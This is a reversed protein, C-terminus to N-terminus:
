PTPATCRFGRDSGTNSSSSYINATFIGARSDYGYYGGRKMAGGFGNSGPYYDGVGQSTGWSDNWFSKQSNRPVLDTVLWNIGDSLSDSYLRIANGANAKGNSEFTSTWAWINGSMDWVVEGTSLKHTRRQLDWTSADCTEETGFCPDNDNTSGALSNAPSNDSHGRNLMGSGVSGGSWNEAVNAMNSTVTMWEDNTILRYNTGISACETISDAQSINVWPSGAANSEPSGSVNKAEFKMICFNSTGYDADGPIGVWTGGSLTSCDIFGIFGDGNEISSTNGANDLARINAYYTTGVVLTLSTISTTLVNSINTWNKIDTAGSSTGISVEYSALGSGDDTSAAWTMDASKTLGKSNVGDVFSSPTTPPINDHIITDNICNTTNGTSDKFKAYVSATSNTQSLSWSAKATAYSEWSGGSSCGSTNTIYMDSASGANLSLTIASSTTYSSGSSITISPSTPAINDHTITDNICSSINGTEDKFKVYVTATANTQGLTWSAKSTAYNEWVGDVSCGSTNTIYMESAGTAALTLDPTSDSTHTGGDIVLSTSTPVNDDHIITDNVCASTNGAEDKFKVYVTATSDSQGLSWSTKSTAYSEWAGDANCGSTNTIYMESAGTAALTLDPTSDSTHTGGDIVLSTSTPANDDHIITDNVCNGETGAANRFKVYVTATANTQGLIWGAKTTSYNSWVGDASCGSTNTIYMEAAGTATLTLDATTNPTHTHGIIAISESSPATSDHIITDSVCSSENGANDKYKVYVTATADTQGLSWNGKSTGYNEWTGGTSCGPTNTIYMEDAGVSFLTLEPTTDATHTGGDITITESSPAIDDHVITDNVCSSMNGAEDKFKAYITVTANTQGSSWATKSTAYNEWSGGTICGPTNTIYMESADTAILTFDTTPNNTHDGGTILISGVPATSDHIITDNVCSSENGSDDKYKVYVTATANTQELSWETKSTAYNEWSGGTICGPTNTIYMHTAGFASLVLNPASNSTHDGNHIVVSHLNPAETDVTLDILSRCEGLSEYKSTVQAYFTHSGNSINQLEIKVNGDQKTLQTSLPTGSCNKNSYISLDADKHLPGADIKPASSVTTNITDLQVNKLRPPGPIFKGFINSSTFCLKNDLLTANLHSVNKDTSVQTVTHIDNETHFCIHATIPSPLNSLLDIDELWNVEIAGIISLSDSFKVHDSIIKNIAPDNMTQIDLTGLPTKKNLTSLDIQISKDSNESNLKKSELVTDVIKFQGSVIRTLTCVESNKVIGKEQTVIQNFTSTIQIDKLNPDSVTNICIEIDKEAVPTKDRDETAIFLTNINLGEGSELTTVETVVTKKYSGESVIISGSSLKIISPEEPVVVARTTNSISSSIDVNSLASRDSLKESGECSIIFFYLIHLMFLHNM